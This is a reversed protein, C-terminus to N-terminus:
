GAHCARIAHDELSVPAGFIAMVGDGMVQSVTGGYSEVSGCIRELVPELVRRAEEPDRDAILQTSGRLDAFLVTVLKREGELTSAAACFFRAM